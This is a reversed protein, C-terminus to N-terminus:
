LQGAWRLAAWRWVQPRLCGLIAEFGPGLPHLGDKFEDSWPDLEQGCTSYLVQKCPSLPLWRPPPPQLHLRWLRPCPFIPKM